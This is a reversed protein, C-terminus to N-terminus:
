KRVEKDLEIGGIIEPVKEWEWSDPYLKLNEENDKSWVSDNYFESEMFNKETEEGNEYYLEWYGIPEPYLEEKGPWEYFETESYARELRRMRQWAGNEFSYMEQIVDEWKDTGVRVVLVHTSENWLPFGTIDDGYTEAEPLYKKEYCSQERNWILTRFYTDCWATGRYNLGTCFAIDAYGDGSFDTIWYTEEFEVPFDMFMQECITSGGEDRITFRYDARYGSTDEYFLRRYVPSFRAFTIECTQDGMFVEEHWVEQPLAPLTDELAAEGSYVERRDFWNRKSGSEGYMESVVTTGFIGEMRAPFCIPVVVERIRYDSGNAYTITVCSEEAKIDSIIEYSDPLYLYFDDKLDHIAIYNGKYDSEMEESDTRYFEFENDSQLLTGKELIEQPIETYPEGENEENATGSIESESNNEAEDVRKGSNGIGVICACIIFLISIFIWIKKSQKM